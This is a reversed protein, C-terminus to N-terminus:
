VLRRLAIRQQANGEGSEWNAVYKCKFSRTMARLANERCRQHLSNVRSIRNREFVPFHRRAVWLAARREAALISAASFVVAPPRCSIYKTLVGAARSECVIDRALKRRQQFSALQRLKEIVPDSFLQSAVEVGAEIGLVPDNNEKAGKLTQTKDEYAREAEFVSSWWM